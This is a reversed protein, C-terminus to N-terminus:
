CRKHTTKVKMPALWDKVINAILRNTHQSYHIDDVYLLNTVNRIPGNVNAPWAGVGAQTNYTGTFMPDFEVFPESIANINSNNRLYDMTAKSGLLNFELDVHSNAFIQLADFAASQFVDNVQTQLYLMADDPTGGFITSYFLACKRYLPLNVLDDTSMIAFVRRMGKNYLTTLNNILATIYADKQSQIYGPQDNVPIQGFLINFVVQLVDNDGIGHYIFVDDSEISICSKELLECFTQIEWPFALFDPSPSVVPPNSYIVNSNVNQGAGSLAFNIYKGKEHPIHKIQSGKLMEMGLEPAVFYPWNKVDTNIADNNWRVQITAVGINLDLQKVISPAPNPEYPFNGPDTYSDGFHYVNVAVKSKSKSCHKKKCMHGM